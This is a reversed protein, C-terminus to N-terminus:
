PRKPRYGEKWRYFEVLYGGPDLVRVEEIDKHGTITSKGEYWAVGPIAALLRYWEDLSDTEISLMTGKDKVPRMVGKTGDVLALQMGPGFEVIIVWGDDYIPKLGLGDVYWRRAPALDAYYFNAVVANVPPTTRAGPTAAAGVVSPPALALALALGLRLPRLVSRTM